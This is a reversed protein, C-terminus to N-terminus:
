EPMAQPVTKGSVQEVDAGVQHQNLMQQAM